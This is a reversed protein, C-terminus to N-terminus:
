EPDRYRGEWQSEDINSLAVLLVINLMIGSATKVYDQGHAAPNRWDSAIVDIADRGNSLSKIHDFIKQLDQVLERFKAQKMYLRLLHGVNSCKVGKEYPKKKFKVSFSKKVTGDLEIFEFLALKLVAELLPYVLYGDPSVRGVSMNSLPGWKSASGCPRVELSGSKLMVVTTFLNRLTMFEFGDVAGAPHCKMYLSPEDLLHRGIADWYKTHDDTDIGVMAARLGAISLGVASARAEERSMREFSVCPTSTVQAWDIVPVGEKTESSLQSFREVIEEYRSM